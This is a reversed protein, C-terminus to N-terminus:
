PHQSGKQSPATIRSLDHTEKRAMPNRGPAHDPSASEAEDLEAYGPREETTAQSARGLCLVLPTNENSKVAVM